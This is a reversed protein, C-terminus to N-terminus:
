EEGQKAQTRAVKALLRQMLQDDARFNTQRLREFAVRLNTFGHEAADALVRLTGLVPLSRKEAERRGERDDMLLADAELETALAIAEREGPGLVDQLSLISQRPAQLHLWEPRASLWERVISPTREQDLETVVAPPVIVRGYLAPLVRVEEILILYRLPSADAVVIV